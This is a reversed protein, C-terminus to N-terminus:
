PLSLSSDSFSSEKNAKILNDITKYRKALIKATKAGVNRIGLAFLLRELSMHKSKEISDMLNNISKQGYGELLKLEDIYKDLKYFDVFTKLYGLNYFDEIISEGMGEIYM